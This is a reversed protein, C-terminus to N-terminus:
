WENSWASHLTPEPNATGTTPCRTTSVSDIAASGPYVSTFAEGWGRAGISFMVVRGSGSYTHAGDPGAGFAVLTGPGLAREGTQDRLVPEGSVVYMWEEVGDHFHYPGHIDGREMEYVTAGILRAGLVGTLDHYTARSTGRDWLLEMDCEVVNVKKLM